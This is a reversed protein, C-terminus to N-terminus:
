TDDDGYHIEMQLNRRTWGDAVGWQVALDGFGLGRCGGKHAKRGEVYWRQACFGQGGDSGGQAAWRGHSLERMFLVFWLDSDVFDIRVMVLASISSRKLGEIEM